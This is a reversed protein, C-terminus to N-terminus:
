APSAAPEGRYRAQAVSLIRDALVPMNASVWMLALQAVPVRGRRAQDGILSFVHGAEAPGLVEELASGVARELRAQHRAPLVHSHLRCVEPLPSRQSELDFLDLRYGCLLSFSRTACIGNWLEELELAADTQGQEHLINVMEGFVRLGREPSRPALEDLLTGIVAEFAIASPRGDRMISRLTADADAVVLLGEAEVRPTDWGARELREVMSGLHDRTAVVLAPEAAAFGEALFATVSEALEDVHEYVQVAHASPTPGRLLDTPGAPM